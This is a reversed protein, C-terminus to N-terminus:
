LYSLMVAYIFSNRIITFLVAVILFILLIKGNIYITPLTINFPKLLYTIFMYLLVPFTFFLFANAKFANKFDLNLLYHLYRQGGCGPCDLKFFLKTPCFVFFADSTAPSYLYFYGGVFFTLIILLLSILKDM